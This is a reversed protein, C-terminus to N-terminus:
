PLVAFVQALRLAFGPLLATRIVGRPGLKTKRWTDGRRIHITASRTLPDIVWYQRVGAALYADAKTQYDRKRSSTSVVEIVIDPTWEDWPQDSDTPPPSFYVTLDPHRESELEWMRVVSGSGDSVLDISGPHRIRYAVLADCISQRVREHPVGPADVM